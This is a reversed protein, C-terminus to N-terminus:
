GQSRIAQELAALSAPLDERANAQAWHRILDPLRGPLAVRMTTYVGPVMLLMDRLEGASTGPKPTCILRGFPNTRESTDDRLNALPLHTLRRLGPHDGSWRAARAWSAINQATDDTSINPPINEIVVKSADDSVTVQAQLRLETRRGAALAALSGTVSCGTLFWPPGVIGALETDPVEPRKIVERVANIIASPRFPPRLGERYTNGNILGIPVPAIERREAALAVRGARTIRAQTYRFNAPPDNGRSGFNGQGHVLHVPMTWPRAMDVLVDYAYGPALGIREEVRALAEACRLFRSTEVAGLIAIEVIGLGTRESM